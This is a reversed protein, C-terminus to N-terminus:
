SLKSGSFKPFSKAADKLGDLMAFVLGTPLNVRVVPEVALKKFVAMQQMSFPSAYYFDMCGNTGSYGAMVISATVVVTQDANSKFETIKGPVLHEAYKSYEIRFTDPAAALFQVV